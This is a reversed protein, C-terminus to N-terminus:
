HDTATWAHSGGDGRSFVESQWILHFSRVSFCHCTVVALCVDFTTCSPWSLSNYVNAFANYKDTQVICYAM